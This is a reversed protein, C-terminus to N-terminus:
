GMGGSDCGATQLLIMVVLPAITHLHRLHWLIKRSM